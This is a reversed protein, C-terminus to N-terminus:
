SVRLVTGPRISKANKINNIKKLKEVTMGNFKEAITSLTDGSRVKYTRPQSKKAAAIFEQKSGYVKLRQGSVIKNSRLNNWSKLDSVSCKNKAAISGLNEGSRVKYYTVASKRKKNKLLSVFEDDIQQRQERSSFSALKVEAQDLISTNLSAFYEKANKPLVLEQPNGATANVVHKRYKPNLMNLEDASVNLVNAIKALSVAKNVLITDTELNFNADGQEINHQPAYTMAYTAAIFAPVYNATERPLFPRIDWFNASGGAKNIAKDVNGPGCNYAAIVLLWDSYRDFLDSLFQVAAITSAVPDRREDVYYNVDLDYMKGTGYMFQWLGTAGVRSVATPNLASEIVPLYKLEIPLGEEKLYKEFIPFYYKGVGLMRSVLGRRKFAYLDIHNQVYENYDMPIESKISDLRLKYIHNEFYPIETPDSPLVFLTDQARPAASALLPAELSDKLGPPNQKFTKILPRSGGDAMATVAAVSFCISLLIKKMRLKM